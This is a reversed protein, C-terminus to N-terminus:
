DEEYAYMFDGCQSCEIVDKPDEDYDEEFGCNACVFRM